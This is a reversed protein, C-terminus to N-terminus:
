GHRCHVNFEIVFYCDFIKSSGCFSFNILGVLIRILLKLIQKGLYRVSDAM